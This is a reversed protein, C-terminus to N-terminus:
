AFSQNNETASVVLTPDSKISNNLFAVPTWNKSIRHKLEYFVINM